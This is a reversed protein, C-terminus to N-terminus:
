TKRRLFEPTSDPSLIGVRRLVPKLVDKMSQPLMAKATRHLFSRTTQSPDMRLNPGEALKAVPAKKTPDSTVITVPEGAVALYTKRDAPNGPMGPVMVDMVSSFGAEILLNALSTDTFWFSRDNDLSAWLARERDGDDVHELYYHGRVEQGAVSLTERGSLSVFTDLLLIGSCAERIAKLLKWADEAPLHYLIGSCVIIDFMGHKAATFDRVDDQIFKSRRLGLAGAAFDCKAVSVARGEIGLTEAGQTAFEIAYHGELCALDLVRCQSIDKKSVDCAVQLLRRLRYDIAATRTYSGDPLKIAMATWEGNEKIFEAITRNTLEYKGM